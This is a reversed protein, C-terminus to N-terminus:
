CPNSGDYIREPQLGLVTMRELHVACYKPDLEGSNCVRGTHEAAVMTTGSGGFSELIQEGVRSSNHLHRAVLLLPKVTPHLEARQPKPERVVTTERANRLRQIIAILESKDRKQLDCEEDDILSAQGFGGQWYHAGGPKWGYLIPEHQWQYDQRSLTFSNKVWILCQSIKWGAEALALRNLLGLGDAHAVYIAGGPKTFRFANSFAGDLLARYQAEPLCDNMLDAYDVNYPPDTWVMDAVVGALLQELVAPSSTDGCILRHRGIQWVDGLNVRWKEQLKAAASVLEGAAETDDNEIPPAELRNVLGADDWGALAAGIGATQMEAALQSLIEDAFEGLLNNAAVLRAAHTADDYDVISTDAHTYGSAMLVKRRLHGSVLMGNRVNLVIPDFYDHELSRRLIEWKKSGEVPHTRPNRPHELMEALARREIRLAAVREVVDAAGAPAFEFIKEPRLEDGAGAAPEGPPGPQAANAGPDIAIPNM